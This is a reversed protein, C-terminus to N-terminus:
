HQITTTAPKSKVKGTRWHLPALMRRQLLASSEQEVRDCVTSHLPASICADDIWEHTSVLFFFFATIEKKKIVIKQLKKPTTKATDQARRGEEAGVTREEAGM